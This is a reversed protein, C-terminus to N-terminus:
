AAQQEQSQETQAKRLVMEVQQRAKIRVDHEIQSINAQTVGAMQALQKQTIDLSRRMRRIEKGTM